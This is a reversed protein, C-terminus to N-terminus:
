GTKLGSIFDILIKKFIVVIMKIEAKCDDAFLAVIYSTEKYEQTFRKHAWNVSFLIIPSSRIVVKWRSFANFGLM